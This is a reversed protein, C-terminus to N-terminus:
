GRPQPAIDLSANRHLRYDDVVTAMRELTAGTNYPEFETAHAGYAYLIVSGPGDHYDIIANANVGFRDRFGQEFSQELQTGDIGADSGLTIAIAIGDNEQAWRGAQVWAPEDDPAPMVVPTEEAFAAPATLAAGAAATSWAATKLFGRRSYLDNM